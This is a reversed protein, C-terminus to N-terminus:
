SIGCRTSLSSAAIPSIIRHQNFVRSSLSKQGELLPHPIQGVVHWPCSNFYLVFGRQCPCRCYSYRIQAIMRVAPGSKKRVGEQEMKFDPKISPVCVAHAIFKKGVYVSLGVGFKTVLVTSTWLVGAGLYIGHYRYCVFLRRPGSVWGCADRADHVGRDRIYPDLLPCWACM